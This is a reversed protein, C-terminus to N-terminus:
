DSLLDVVWWAQDKPTTLSKRKMDGSLGDKWLIQYMQGKRVKVTFYRNIDDTPKPSMGECIKLDGQFVMVSEARNGGALQLKANLMEQYESEMASVCGATVVM